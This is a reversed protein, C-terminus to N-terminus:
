KLEPAAAAVKKARPAKKPAPAPEGDVRSIHPQVYKLMEPGTLTDRSFLSKLTPDCVIVSKKEASQLSNKKVYSWSRAPLPPPPSSAPGVHPPDPSSPVPAEPVGGVGLFPVCLGKTIDARTSTGTTTGIVKGLLESVKVPKLLANVRPVAAAPSRHPPSHPPDHRRTTLTARSLSLAM